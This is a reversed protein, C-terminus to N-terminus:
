LNGGGLEDQWNRLKGWENKAALEAQLSWTKPDALEFNPGARDLMRQISNEDTVALARFTHIYDDHILKNIRPGIGDIVTFDDKGDNSNRLNFGAAKAEAYDVESKHSGAQLSVVKNPNQNFSAPNNLESSKLAGNQVNSGAQSIKSVLGSLKDNEGELQSIRALHKPNDVEVRKEIIKEVPSDAYKFRRTLLGSFLWGILAGVLYPWLKYLLLTM